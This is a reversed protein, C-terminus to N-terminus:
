KAAACCDTAKPPMAEGVILLGRPSCEAPGAGKSEYPRMAAPIATAIMAV